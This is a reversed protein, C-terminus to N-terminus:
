MIKQSISLVLLKESVVTFNLFLHYISNDIECNLYKMNKGNPAIIREVRLMLKRRSVINKEIQTSSSFGGQLLM